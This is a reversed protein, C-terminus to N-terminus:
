QLQAILQCAREYGMQCARRADSLAESKWGKIRYIIARDYYAEANNPDLKIITNITSIAEDYKGMHCQILEINDYANLDDRNRALVENYDKLAEEYRKLELYCYGRAKYNYPEDGNLQIAESFISIADQYRCANMLKKGQESLGYAKVANSEYFDKENKIWKDNPDLKEAEEIVEQAESMRNLAFLAGSKKRLLTPDNPKLELAHDYDDLARRYDNQGSYCDGREQYYDAIDRYELAKTYYQIAEDYNNEYWFVRAKDSFIRSRLTKLQPNYASLKEAEDCFEEMEHYSGGWRPTLTYLYTDRVHFGYPNYKLAETLSNKKLQEDSVTMGINIMMSYCIDLKPNLTLASKIDELALSFYRRM